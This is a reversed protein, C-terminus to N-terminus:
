FDVGKRGFWGGRFCLLSGDWINVREQRAGKDIGEREIM